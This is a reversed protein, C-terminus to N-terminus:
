NALCVCAAPFTLILTKISGRAEAACLGSLCCFVEYLSVAQDTFILYALHTHTSKFMHRGKEHVQAMGKNTEFMSSLLQLSAGAACSFGARGLVCVVCFLLPLELNETCVLLFHFAQKRHKSQRACLGDSCSLQAVNPQFGLPM